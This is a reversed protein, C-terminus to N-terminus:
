IENEGPQCTSDWFGCGFFRVARDAVLELLADQSNLIPDPVKSQGSSYPFKWDDGTVKQPKVMFHELYKPAPAILGEVM